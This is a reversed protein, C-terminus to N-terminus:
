LDFSVRGAVRAMDGGFSTLDRFLDGGNINTALRRRGTRNLEDNLRNLTNTPMYIAVFGWRKLLNLREESWFEDAASFFGFGVSELRNGSLVLRERAAESKVSILLNHPASPVLFDGYLKLRRFKGRNLSVHASAGWQPWGHDDLAMHPVGHNKLVEGCLAEMVEGGGAGAQRPPHRFPTDPRKPHQIEFAQVVNSSVIRTGLTVECLHVVAKASVRVPLQAYLCPCLELVCRFRRSVFIQAPVTDLAHSVDTPSGLAQAFRRLHEPGLHLRPNALAQEWTNASSGLPCKPHLCEM